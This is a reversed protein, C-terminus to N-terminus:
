PQEEETWISPDVGFLKKAEELAETKTEHWTDATFFGEPAMVLHFGTTEDGQIELRVLCL